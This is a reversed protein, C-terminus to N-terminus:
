SYKEPNKDFMDQEWKRELYRKSSEAKKLTPERYYAMGLKVGDPTIRQTQQVLYYPKFNYPPKSHIPHPKEKEIELTHGTEIKSLRKIEIQVKKRQKPTM